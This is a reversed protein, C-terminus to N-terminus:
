YNGAEWTLQGMSFDFGESFHFLSGRSISFEFYNDIKANDPPPSIGGSFLLTLSEKEALRVALEKILRLFLSYIREANLIM